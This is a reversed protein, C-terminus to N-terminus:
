FPCSDRDSEHEFGNLAATIAAGVSIYERDVLYTLVNRAGEQKAASEAMAITKDISERSIASPKASNAPKAPKREAKTKANAM